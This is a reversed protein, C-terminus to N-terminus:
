GFLVRQLTEDVPHPHLFDGFMGAEGGEWIFLWVFYQKEPMKWYFFDM